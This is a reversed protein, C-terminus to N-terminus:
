KINNIRERAAHADPDNPSFHEVAAWQALADRYRHEQELMRALLKRQALRDGGNIVRDSLFDIAAERRETAQLLRAWLLEQRITPTDRM